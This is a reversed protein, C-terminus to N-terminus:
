DAGVAIAIIAVSLSGAAIVLSSISLWWARVQSHRADKAQMEIVDVLRTMATAQDKASAQIRM